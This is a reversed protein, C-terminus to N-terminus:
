PNYCGSFSDIPKTFYWHVDISITRDNEINVKTVKAIRFPLDNPDSSALIAVMDGEKLGEISGSWMEVLEKRRQM